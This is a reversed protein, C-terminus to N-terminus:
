KRQLEEFMKLDIKTMYDQTLVYQSKQSHHIASVERYFDQLIYLLFYISLILITFVL